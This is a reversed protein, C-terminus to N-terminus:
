NANAGTIGVIPVVLLLSYAPSSLILEWCFKLIFPHFTISWANWNFYRKLLCRISEGRLSQSDQSANKKTEALGRGTLVVFHDKLRSCYNLQSNANTTTWVFGVTSYKITSLKNILRLADWSITTVICKGYKYPETNLERSTPQFNSQM